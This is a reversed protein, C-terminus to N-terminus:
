TRMEFCFSVTKRLERVMCWIALGWLAAFGILSTLPNFALPLKFCPLQLHFERMPESWLEMGDDAVKEVSDVHRKKPPDDYLDISGEKPPEEEEKVGTVLVDEELPPNNPDATTNM